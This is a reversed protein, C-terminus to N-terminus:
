FTFRFALGASGGNGIGIEPQLSFEIKDGKSNRNFRNTFDLIDNSKVRKKYYIASSIVGVLGGTIIMGIGKNFNGNSPQSSPIRQVSPISRNAISANNTSSASIFGAALLIIAGGSGVGLIINAEKNRKLLFSYNSEMQNYLDPDIEQLDMMLSNLGKMNNEYHQNGWHLLTQSNDVYVRYPYNNQASISLYFFFCILILLINKM